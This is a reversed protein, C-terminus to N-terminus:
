FWSGVYCISRFNWKMRDLFFVGELILNEKSEWSFVITQPSIPTEKEKPWDFHFMELLYLCFLGHCPEDGLLSDVGNHATPDPVDDHAEDDEDDHAEDDYKVISYVPKPQPEEGSVLPLPQNEEDSTVTRLGAWIDSGCDSAKAAHWINSVKPM